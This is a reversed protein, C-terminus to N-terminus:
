FRIVRFLFLIFDVALLGSTKREVSAITVMDPTIEIDVGAIPLTTRGASALSQQLEQV